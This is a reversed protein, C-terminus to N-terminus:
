RLSYQFQSVSQQKPTPYCLPLVHEGLLPGSSTSVDYGCSAVHAAAIRGVCEDQLKLKIAGPFPLVMHTDLKSLTPNNM